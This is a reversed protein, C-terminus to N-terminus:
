FLYKVDAGFLRPEGHKVFENGFLDRGRSLMYDQDALNRAWLGVSWQSGTPTYGVHANIVTRGDIQRIPADLDVEAKSRFSCEGYLDLRGGLSRITRSYNATVAGSLKPADTLHLGAADLPAGGPVPPEIAGPFSEYKADLLGLNAGLTLHGSVRARVSAEAGTSEVKAANRLNFFAAGGGLVIFQSVQYDRFKSQFVAVDYQVRQGLATGKLGAELSGVTEPNFRIGSNVQAPNIFDMNWGGSKFGTGYKVYATHNKSMAFTLGVTPTFKSDSRRDRFNRVNGLALFPGTNSGDLNYLFDKTEYTQRAGLNFTVGPTLDYDLSSFFAYAKTEVTGWNRGIQGPNLGFGTGLPAPVPPFFPAPPFRVPTIAMDPGGRGFRDTDSKENLAYLGATYRLAGKTASALRVEQSLQRFHDHFNTNFIDAKTGDNDNLQFWRTDRYASIATLTSGDALDYDFQLSSGKLTHNAVPLINMSVTREPLKEAPSLPAGFFGTTPQGIPSLNEIKAYDGSLRIKLSDTPLFVLQGRVGTNDVSDVDTGALNKTYGDRKEHKISIKGRVDKGLSGSYSGEALFGGYNGIGFRLDGEPTASPERTTLNVAGAVTNRGFLHGQPGRLVEVQEIDSLPLLLAQSQGVYSGDLYVGVRTDIAIQRGGGGVGRVTLTDIRNGEVFSFNPILQAVDMLSLAHTNDATEGNVRVVSMSIPVDQLRESRYQATVIVPALVTVGDAPASTAPVSQAAANSFLVTMALALACPGPRSFLPSRSSSMIKPPNVSKFEALPNM